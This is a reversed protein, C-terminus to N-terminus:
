CSGPPRKWVAARSWFGFAELFVEEGTRENVFALDPIAAAEGPVPFIRDNQHVKWASGLKEFGGGVLAIQDPAHLLRAFLTAGDDEHTM